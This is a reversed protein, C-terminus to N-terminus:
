YDDRRKRVKKPKINMRRWVAATSRDLKTITSFDFSKLNPLTSIVYCVTTAKNGSGLLAASNGREEGGSRECDGKGERSKGVRHARHQQWFNAQPPSPLNVPDITPLDNFSLDFWYIDEPHELLKKMIETFETLDNITNNNLRVAQTLLRGEDTRKIPKPGPRPEETLLDQVFSIGRFSFDVPPAQMAAKSPSWRTCM